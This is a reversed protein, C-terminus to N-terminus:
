WFSTPYMTWTTWPLWRYWYYVYKCPNKLDLKPPMSRIFPSFISSCLSPAWVCSWFLSLKPRKSTSFNPNKKLAAKPRDEFNHKRHLRPPCKWFFRSFLHDSLSFHLRFVKSPLHSPYILPSPPAWFRFHQFLMPKVVVKQLTLLAVLVGSGRVVIRASPDSM